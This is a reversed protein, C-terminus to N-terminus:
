KGPNLFSLQYCLTYVQQSLTKEILRLAEASNEGYQSNWLMRQSNLYGTFFTKNNGIIAQDENSANEAWLAYLRDLEAQWADILMLLMDTETLDDGSYMMASMFVDSHAECTDWVENEEDLILFYCFPSTSAVKEPQYIESFTHNWATNLAELTQPWAIGDADLGYDNQFLQVATKTKNGFLGDIKDNLYGLDTLKQQLAKVESAHNKIDKYLTGDPYFSETQKKGCQTCEREKQGKSHDTAKVTTKWASYDHGKELTRSSSLGCHICYTRMTGDETCTAEELVHSDEWEHRTEKLTETKIEECNACAYKNYGKDTCTPFKEDILEWDHGYARDTIEVKTAGCKTCELVYYGDSTCSPYHVETMDYTHSCEACASFATLMLFCILITFIRKM